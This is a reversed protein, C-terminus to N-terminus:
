GELRFRGVFEAAWHQADAASGGNGCFYLTGGSSISKEMLEMATSIDLELTEVLAFAEMTGALYESYKM